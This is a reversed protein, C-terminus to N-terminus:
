SVVVALSSPSLSPVARVVVVVAVDQIDPARGASLTGAEGAAWNCDQM